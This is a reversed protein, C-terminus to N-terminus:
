SAARDGTRYDPAGSLRPPYGEPHTLRRRECARLVRCTRTRGSDLFEFGCRPCRGTGFSQRRISVPEAVARVHVTARVLAHDSCSLDYDYRMELVGVEETAWMQDYRCWRGSRLRHSQALPGDSPVGALDRAGAPSRLWERWLDRARHAVTGPPGVLFEEGPHGARGSPWYFETDPWTLADRKPTNADIAFLYPTPWTAVWKAIRTHYWPKRGSVGMRGPGRSTGPTAHFAGVRIEAGDATGLDVAIHREHYWRALEPYITLGDHDQLFDNVSLQVQRRPTVRSSGVVAVALHRGHVKAGVSCRWWAFGCALAFREIDAPAVELLCLVDLDSHAIVDEQRARRSLGGFCWLNLLGFRLASSALM